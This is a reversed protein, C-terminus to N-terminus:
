FLMNPLLLKSPGEQGELVLEVEMPEEADFERLVLTGADVVEPDVGLVDDVFVVCTRM